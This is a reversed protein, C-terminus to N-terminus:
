ADIGPALGEGGVPVVHLGLHFIQALYDVLDALAAARFGLFPM